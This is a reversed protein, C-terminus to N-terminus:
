DLTRSFGIPHIAYFAVVGGLIVTIALSLTLFLAWVWRLPSFVFCYAGALFSLALGGIAGLAM